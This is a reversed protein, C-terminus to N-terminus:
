SAGEGKKGYINIMAKFNCPMEKANRNKKHSISVSPPLDTNGLPSRTSFEVGRSWDQFASAPHHKYIYM